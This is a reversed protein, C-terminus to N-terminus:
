PRRKAAISASRAPNAAPAVDHYIGRVDANLKLVRTESNLAMGVAELTMQNDTITVHRDTKAINDDPMVHLYETAVVLM